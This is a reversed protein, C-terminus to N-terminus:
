PTGAMANPGLPRVGVTMDVLVAVAAVGVKTALPSAAELRGKAAVTVSSQGDAPSAVEEEIAVPTKADVAFAVPPVENTAPRGASPVVAATEDVEKEAAPRGVPPPYADTRATAHGDPADSPADAPQGPDRGAGEGGRLLCFVGM